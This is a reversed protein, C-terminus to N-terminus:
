KNECTYAGNVNVFLSDTVTLSDADMVQVWIYGSQSLSAELLQTTGSVGGWWSWSYPETGGDTDAVWSCTENPPVQDDGVISVGLPTPPSSTSDTAISGLAGIIDVWRSYVFSPNDPNAAFLIGYLDIKNPGAGAVFRFVPSGSDGGDAYGNTRVACLVTRNTDPDNWDYCTNTVQGSTWGTTRGVKQVGVGTSYSNTNNLYIFWRPNTSSITLIPNDTCDSTCEASPQAVAGFEGTSGANYKIFAVDAQMCVRGGPCPSGTYTPADVVEVGINESFSWPQFFDTSDAAGGWVDTCHSATMFGSGYVSHTGNATMTCTGQGNTWVQMGGPLPRVSDRLTATPLDPEVVEIVVASIPIGLRRVQSLMLTRVGESTVGVWVRNAREDADLAHVGPIGLLPRLQDRWGRLSAFDYDASEILVDGTAWSQDAGGLALAFGRVESRARSAYGLDRLRAVLTGDANVYFGAFGPLVQGISAFVDEINPALLGQAPLVSQSPPGEPGVSSVGPDCATSLLLSVALPWAPRFRVPCM